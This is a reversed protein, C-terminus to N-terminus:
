SPVDDGGTEEADVVFTSAIARLERLFPLKDGDPHYVSIDVMFFRDGSFFLYTEFAGGMGYKENQWLGKLITAEHGQFTGPSGHSRSCSRHDSPNRHGRHPM